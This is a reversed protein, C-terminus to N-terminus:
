TKLSKFDKLFLLTQLKNHSLNLYKISIEYSKSWDPNIFTLENSSLDLSHLNPFQDFPFIDIKLLKFNSLNLETLHKFSLLDNNNM